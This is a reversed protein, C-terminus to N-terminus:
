RYLDIGQAESASQPGGSWLWLSFFFCFFCDSRLFGFVVDVDVEVNTIISMAEVSVDADAEVNTTTAMAEVNEWFFRGEGCNIAM